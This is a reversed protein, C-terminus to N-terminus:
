LLATLIECLIPAIRLPPYFAKDKEFYGKYISNRRKTNSYKAQLVGFLWCILRVLGVM